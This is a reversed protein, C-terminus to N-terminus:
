AEYYSITHPVDCLNGCKRCEIPFKPIQFMPLCICNSAYQTEIFNKLTCKDLVEIFFVQGCDLCRHEVNM